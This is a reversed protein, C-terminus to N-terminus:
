DLDIVQSRKWLWEVAEAAYRLARMDANRSGKEFGDNVAAVDACKILLKVIQDADKNSCSLAIARPTEFDAIAQRLASEAHSAAESM